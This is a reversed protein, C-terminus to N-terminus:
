LRNPISLVKSAFDEVEWSLSMKGFDACNGFYACRKRGWSFSHSVTRWFKAFSWDNLINVFSVFYASLCFTFKDFFLNCWFILTSHLIKSAIFQPFDTLNEFQISFYWIRFLVKLTKEHNNWNKHQVWNGDKDNLNKALM